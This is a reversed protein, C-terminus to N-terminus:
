FVIYGNPFHQGIYNDAPYDKFSSVFTEKQPYLFNSFTKYIDSNLNVCNQYRRKIESGNLYSIKETPDFNGLIFNYKNSYLITLYRIVFDCLEHDIKFKYNNDGLNQIVEITNSPSLSYIINNLSDAIHLPIGIRHSSFITFIPRHCIGTHQYQSVPIFEDFPYVYGAVIEIKSSTSALPLCFYPDLTFTSDLNKPIANEKYRWTLHLANTLSKNMLIYIYNRASNYLNNLSSKDAEWWEKNLNVKHYEDQVNLNKPIFTYQNSYYVNLFNCVYKSVEESYDFEPAEDGCAKWIYGGGKQETKSIYSLFRVCFDLTMEISKDLYVSIRSSSIEYDFGGNEGSNAVQLGVFVEFGASLFVSEM